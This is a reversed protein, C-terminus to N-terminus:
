TKEKKARRAAERKQYRQQAKEISEDDFRIKGVKNSMAAIKKARRQVYNGPNGPNFKLPNPYCATILAAQHKSLQAASCHFYHQAAAEAGYIGDGMEIVNLYVEMIREKGWIHEILFTFYVECGKRVWSSKPWLFVNKATQQSITSAGRHRGGAKREEIAKEIAGYDFGSHGLFNNDEAAVACRVMHSSINELDKWEHEIKAGNSVKRILMLPTVPPNVWRYAVPLLISIIFLILILKGVWKLVKGGKSSSKSGGSTKKKKAM